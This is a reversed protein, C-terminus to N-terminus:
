CRRTVPPWKEWPAWGVHIPWWYGPRYARQICTVLVWGHAAAQTGAVHISVGVPVGVLTGTAAPQAGALSRYLTQQAALTGTPSPQVGALHRSIIAVTLSGTGPLQAGALHTSTIQVSLTGSPAPQAGTLLEFERTALTSSASPQSGSLSRSLEQHIALSGTAAPQAGALTEFTGIGLVGTPAAQVGSLSVHAFSWSFTLAGTPAPQAGALHKATFQSALAGTAAPQVGALRIGTGISIEGTASPQAGALHKATFLPVLAGAPAPQAGALAVLRVAALFGVAAPQSGAVAIHVLPRTFALTGTSAPQSGALAKLRRQTLTGVASPQVGELHKATVLAVLAGAAAPQSGSLHRSTIKLTLAGTAAPQTGALSVTTGVFITGSPAPQNGALHKSIFLPTLVGSASPQEGALHKATLLATLTGTAAPQSGSLAVFLGAQLEGSPAPQSGALHKATFLPTLTGTAAPQAGALAVLRLAALTGTAAPQSGELHKSTYLAIVAGTAAPQVGALHKSTFQPTLAGTAAPQSGALDVFLKAQVEGTAAPQAGTLTVQVPGTQASISGTAAPQSGALAVHVLTRDFAVTGAAAPQVGTLDIFRKVHLAGTGAPQAGALHKSTFQKGLAGAAAPQTGALSVSVGGLAASFGVLCRDQVTGTGAVTTFDLNVTRSAGSTLAKMKFISIPALDATAWVCPPPQDDGYAPDSGMSGDDDDQLRVSVRDTVAVPDFIVSGIYFWNGTVSPTVSFTAETEWSGGGSPADAAATYVGAHQSFKNLRIAVIATRAVDFANTGAHSMRVSITHSAASLAPFYRAMLWARTEDGASTDEGEMRTAPATAGGVSEHIQAQIAQGAAASRAILEHVAGIVLWDDTGNPTFTVAAQATPTTTTTYDATVENWFFDTNETFDDSLKFAFLQSWDCTATTVGETGIQLKVLETTGPQTFRYMYAIINGNDAADLDYCADGDTFVTPTTGHVLRAHYEASGSSFRVAALAIILYEKNATFSGAAISACDTWSGAGTATLDSVTEAYLMQASTM